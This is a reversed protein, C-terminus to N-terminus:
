LQLTFKITHMCLTTSRHPLGTMCQILILINDLNLVESNWLL